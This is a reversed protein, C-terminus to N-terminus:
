IQLMQWDCVNVYHPNAEHIGGYPQLIQETFETKHYDPWSQLIAQWTVFKDSQSETLANDSLSETLHSQLNATSSTM